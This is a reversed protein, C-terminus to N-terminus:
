RKFPASDPKPARRSYWDMPHRRDSQTPRALLSVQKISCRVGVQVSGVIAPRSLSARHLGRTVIKAADVANKRAPKVRMASHRARLLKELVANQNLARGQSDTWTFDVDLLQGVAGLDKRAVAQVSDHDPKFPLKSIDNGTM